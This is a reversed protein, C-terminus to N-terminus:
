FFLYRIGLLSLLIAIISHFIQENLRNFMKTGIFIGSFGFPITIVGWLFIRFSFIGSLAYSPILICLMTLACLLITAKFEEKNCGRLTLYIIFIPGSAFISGGLIGGILGALFGWAENNLLTTTASVKRMSWLSYLLIVSGLLKRISGESLIRLLYVGIFLGPVIGLILPISLRATLHRRLGHLMFGMLLPAQIVLMPVAIKVSIFLPLLALSVLAYGFGLIGFILGSIMIFACVPIITIEFM